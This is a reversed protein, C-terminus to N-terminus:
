QEGTVIAYCVFCLVYCRPVYFRGMKFIIHYYLIFLNFFLYRRTHFNLDFFGFIAIRLSAYPIIHFKPTM